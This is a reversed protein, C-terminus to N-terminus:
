EKETYAIYTLHDGLRELNSVLNIFVSSSAPKCEGRNLRDIHGDILAKRMNDIEEEVEDVSSMLALDHYLVIRRTYDFLINIKDGMLKVNDIVGESFVLDNDVTLTTYKIFNDSIEAIRMIDGLNNYLNSIIKEQVVGSQASVKVIYDIITRNLGSAKAIAKETEELGNKTKKIFCELSNNFGSMAIDALHMSEKTVLDIAVAPTSIMRDDLYNIEIESKDDKIVLQAIKVLVGSFPLFILTCVLNFATHFMAIQTATSNPFWTAFTNEMFSPWLLFITLFIVSGFTNFMLHILSTRKANAKSGISSIIATVCSGINTGLIMYLVENGGTGITLGAVAIAIIISTVAASSQVLATLLIGLLFLIFPNELTVFIGKLYNFREPYMEADMSNSMLSLGIFILGFGAIIYGLKKFNDKKAVMAVMIGIFSIIKIYESFDFSSLAAIQATLTTGINAGMIMATAQNLTMMGVNVFGVILVTTVGSSQVLATTAAGIGVNAFKNKATKNFLNKIRTTALKEINTSLLRVGVLFVGAGALIEVIFIIIEGTSM